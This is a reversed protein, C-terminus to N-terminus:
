FERVLCLMHDAFRGNPDSSGLNAKDVADDFIAQLNFSEEFNM